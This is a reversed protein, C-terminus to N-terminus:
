WAWRAGLGGYVLGGLACIGLLAAVGTLDPRALAPKLVLLLGVVRPRMGITALAM